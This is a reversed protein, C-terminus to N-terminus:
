RSQRKTKVQKVVCVVGPQCTLCESGRPVSAAGGFRGTVESRWSNCASLPATDVSGEAAPVTHVGREWGTTGTKTCAAECPFCLAAQCRTPSIFVRPSFCCSSDNKMESGNTQLVSTVFDAFTQPSFCYCRGSCIYIAAKM